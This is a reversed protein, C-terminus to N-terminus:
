SHAREKSVMMNAQRAELVSIYVGLCNGPTETTMFVMVGRKRSPMRRGPTVLVSGQAAQENTSALSSNDM